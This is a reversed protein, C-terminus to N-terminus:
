GDSREPVRIRGEAILQEVMGAWNAEEAEGSEVCEGLLKDSYFLGCPADFGHRLAYVGDESRMLKGRRAFGGIEAGDELRVMIRM